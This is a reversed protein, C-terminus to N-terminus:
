LQYDEQECRSCVGELEPPLDKKEGCSLCTGLLGLIMRDAVALQDRVNSVMLSLRKLTKELYIVDEDKTYERLVEGTDMRKLTYHIQGGPTKNWMEVIEVKGNTEM